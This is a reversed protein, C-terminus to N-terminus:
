RSARWGRCPDAGLAQQTAQEIQRKTEELRRERDEDIEVRMRERQSDTIKRAESLIEEAESKAQGILRAISRSCAARRRM